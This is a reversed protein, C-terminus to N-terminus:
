SGSGGRGANAIVAFLGDLVANVIAKV